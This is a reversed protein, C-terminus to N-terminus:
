MSEVKADVEALIEDLGYRESVELPEGYHSEALLPLIQYQWVQALRKISVDHDDPMFYSPGIQADRRDAGIRANLAIHIRETRDDLDHRRLWRGLVDRTPPADPHLEVFAFRRRMAADLLAISRDATNMTGIVYLNEPLSFSEDGYLLQIAEDRYELLFYLEGFVKALNGRNIEDIVLVYSAEPNARARQALQLLPGRRLEYGLSGDRDVPRYGAVFDEYAYSPHFQVIVPEAGAAIHRGIARALWTKGTGPPGYLIVQRQRWLLNLFDQLWGDDALTTERLQDDTAPFPARTLSSLPEDGVQPAAPEALSLSPAQWRARLAPSYWAVERHDKVQLAITIRHLDEDLDGTSEGIEGVFADRIRTLHDESVISIFTEPHVLYMLARHQSAFGTGPLRRLFDRFAWADELLHMRTEEDLAVWHAGFQLVVGVAKYVQTNMWTGPNFAGSGFAEGIEEPITVPRSMRALIREIRQRKRDAGIADTSIPLLQLTVIEAMLLKADDSAGDLQVGLQDVFDGEGREAGLFREALIAFLESTWIRRGPAFVSESDRLARKVFVQAAEIIRAQGADTRIIQTALIAQQEARWTIYADAAAIDFDVASSYDRLAARGADTIRWSGKGDKTLWGAKVLNTTSWLFNTLGRAHGNSHQDIEDGVLPIDAQVADWVAHRTSVGGEEALVEMARRVRAANVTRDAM